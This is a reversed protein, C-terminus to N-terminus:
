RKSLVVFYREPFFRRHVLGSSSYCRQNQPRHGYNFQTRQNPRKHHTGLFRCFCVHCGQFISIAHQKCTRGMEIETSCTEALYYQFPELQMRRELCLQNFKHERAQVYVTILYRNLQSASEVFRPGRDEVRQHFISYWINMLVPLKRTSFQKYEKPM